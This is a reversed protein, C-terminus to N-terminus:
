PRIVLSALLRDVAERDRPYYFEAPGSYWILNLKERREFFTVHGLYHLGSGIDFSADFRFATVDGVSVPHLNSTKVNALGFSTLADRIVGELEAADMGTRYFPGDPHRKTAKQAGGFVHYKDRVNAIYVIRNLAAGDITWIEGNYFRYRAWDVPSTLTMHRVVKTPENARVLGPPAGCATLLALSAATAIRLIWRDLTRM